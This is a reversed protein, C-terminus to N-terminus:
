HSRWPMSLAIAELVPLPRYLILSGIAILVALPARTDGALVPAPNPGGM